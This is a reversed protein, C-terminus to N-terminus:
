LGLCPHRRTVQDLDVHWLRARAMDPGLLDRKDHHMLIVVQDHDVLGRAHDHMGGGAARFARQDIREQMM